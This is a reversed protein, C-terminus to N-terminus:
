RLPAQVSFRIGFRTGPGPARCPDGVASAGGAESEKGFECIIHWTHPQFSIFYTVTKNKVGSLCVIQNFFPCLAEISIEGFLVYLHGVPM